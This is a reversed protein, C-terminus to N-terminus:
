DQYMKKLIEQMVTSNKDEDCAEKRLELLRAKMERIVPAYEADRYANRNEHPDKVLDYFEWSPATPTDESGAADLRNGYLLM